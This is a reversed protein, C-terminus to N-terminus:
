AQLSTEVIGLVADELAVDVSSLLFLAFPLGECLGVAESVVRRCRVSTTAM